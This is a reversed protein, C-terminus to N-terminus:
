EKALERDIESRYREVLAAGEAPPSATGSGEGTLEEGEEAASAKWRWLVVAVAGVGLLLAVYPMLWGLWAFGERPPEALIRPGYERLMGAVVQEETKGAALGNRITNLMYMRVSCNIGHPCTHVTGTCGGCQCLLRDAIRRVPPDNITLREAGAAGSSTASPAPAPSQGRATGALALALVLVAGASRGARDPLFKM